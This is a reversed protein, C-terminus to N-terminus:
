GSVESEWAEVMQRELRTAGALWGGDASTLPGRRTALTARDLLKLLANLAFLQTALSRASVARWAAAAALRALLAPPNALDTTKRWAASYGAFVKGFAEYRRLLRDTDATWPDSERFPTRTPVLASLATELLAAPDHHGSAEGDAHARHYATPDASAHPDPVLLHPTRAWTRRWADGPDSAAVARDWRRLPEERAARFAPLFGPGELPAFGYPKAVEALTADVYRYGGNM